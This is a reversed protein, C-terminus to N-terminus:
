KEGHFGAHIESLPSLNGAEFAKINDDANDSVTKYLKIDAALLVNAAKEGCRPTLLVDAGNDIVIQAAQIGAGGTSTAATNQVFYTQKSTLDSFLFYPARGFSACVATDTNNENVPIVIKM